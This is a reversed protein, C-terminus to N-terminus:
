QEGPPQCGAMAELDANLEPPRDREDQLNLIRRVLRRLVADVEKSDKCRNRVEKLILGSFVDESRDICFLWFASIAYLIRPFVASDQKEYNLTETMLEEVLAEEEQKKREEDGCDFVNLGAEGM